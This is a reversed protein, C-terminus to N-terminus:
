CTVTEVGSEVIVLVRRVCMRSKSRAGKGSM